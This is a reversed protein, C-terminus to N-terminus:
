IVRGLVISKYIVSTIAGTWVQVHAKRTSVCIPVRTAVCLGELSCVADRAGEFEEVGLCPLLVVLDLVQSCFVGLQQRSDGHKFLHLICHRFSVAQLVLVRGTLVAHGGKPMYCSAAAFIVCM